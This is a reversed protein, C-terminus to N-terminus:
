RSSAVAGVRCRAATRRVAHRFTEADPAASLVALWVGRGSIGYISFLFECSTCGDSDMHSSKDGTRRSSEGSRQEVARDSDTASLAGFVFLHLVVLFGRQELVPWVGQAKREENGATHDVRCYEFRHDAIPVGGAM